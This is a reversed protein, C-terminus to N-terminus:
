ERVNGRVTWGLKLRTVSRKWKTFYYYVTQAVIAFFVNPNRLAIEIPILFGGFVIVFIVVAVTRIVLTQLDQKLIPINKM